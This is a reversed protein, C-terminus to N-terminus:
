ADTLEREKYWAMEPEGQTAAVSKADKNDLADFWERATIRELWDPHRKLVQTWQYSSGCKKCMRGKPAPGTTWVDALGCVSHTWGTPGFLQWLHWTGSAAQIVHYTQNALPKGEGVDSLRFRVM